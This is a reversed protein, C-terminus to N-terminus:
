HGVDWYEPAGTCIANAERAVRVEIADAAVATLDVDMSSVDIAAFRLCLDLEGELWRTAQLPPCLPSLPRM